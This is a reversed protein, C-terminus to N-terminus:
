NKVFCYDKTPGYGKGRAIKITSFYKCELKKYGVGACNEDAACKALCESVNRIESDVSTPAEPKMCVKKENMTWNTGPCEAGCMRSMSSNELVLNKNTSTAAADVMIRTVFQCFKMGLASYGFDRECESQESYAKDCLGKYKAEWCVQSKSVASLTKTYCTQLPGSKSRKIDGAVLFCAQGRLSIANCTPDNACARKCSQISSAKASQKIQKRTRKSLKGLCKFKKYETFDWAAHAFNREHCVFGANAEKAEDSWGM